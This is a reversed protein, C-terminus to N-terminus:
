CARSHVRLGLAAGGQRSACPFSLHTSAEAAQLRAAERGEAGQGRRGGGERRLAKVERFHLGPTQFQRLSFRETVESFHSGKM